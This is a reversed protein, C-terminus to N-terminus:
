GKDATADEPMGTQSASHPLDVADGDKTEVTKEAVKTCGLMVLIFFLFLLSRM